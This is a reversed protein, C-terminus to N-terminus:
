AARDVVAAVSTADATPPDGKLMAALPELAAIMRLRRDLRAALWAAMERELTELDEATTWSALPTARALATQRPPVVRGAAALLHHAIAKNFLDEFRGGDERERAADHIDFLIEAEGRTVPGGGAGGAAALIRACLAADEADLTRSFHIRGGAAPGEGTMVGRRVEALADVAHEIEPVTATGIAALLRQFNGVSDAPGSSESPNNM